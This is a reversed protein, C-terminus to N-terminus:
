GDPPGGPGGGSGTLGGVGSTTSRRTTAGTSSPLATTPDALVVVQGATLGKEVQVRGQGVAGVTVRATQVTGGSLVQVAGSGSSVGTVASVPVTLVDSATALTFSVTATSGAALTVPAEPATVRVPYTPTSSTTSSPLVGISQVLGPVADTTGAPTVTVDQAVRVHGLQALPLAVTVVAGGAGVVVVGASTSAPEGAVLDVQGVRGNIPARLVAGDLDQEAGALDQTAQLVAVELSAASQTSGGGSGGGGSGGGSGGGAGTTSTTGTGGAAGATTGTQGNSGQTAANSQQETLAKAAADLAKALRDMGSATRTASTLASTLARICAGVQEATPSAPASSGETSTQSPTPSPTPSTTASPSPTPSTTASPSPPTPTPDPNTGADILPQCTTVAARVLADYDDVAQHVGSTDVRPAPSAPATSASRAPSSGSGSGTSTSPTSAASTETSTSSSSSTSGAADLAAQAAVLNAQAVTVARGLDATDMVAVVDGAEVDDGVTVKVSTVTGTTRFAATVQDVREVSGSLSISQTVSGTAVTATRMGSTAAQSPLADVVLYTGAGLVALSCGM